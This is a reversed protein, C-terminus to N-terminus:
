PNQDPDAVRRFVNYVTHPELENEKWQLLNVHVVWLHDMRPLFNIEAKYLLTDDCESIDRAQLGVQRFM